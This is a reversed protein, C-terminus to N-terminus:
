AATAQRYVSICRSLFTVLCLATLVWMAGEEVHLILGASILIAREAREGPGSAVTYGLAEAKARAYPVLSTVVMAVLGAILVRPRHYRWGLSAIAALLAGDGIRDAVSDFFGGWVTVRNTVRALAGDFVDLFWAPIMVIGALTRHGIVILWVVVFTWLLGISTVMNPTLGVRAMARGVGATFPQILPRVKDNLM